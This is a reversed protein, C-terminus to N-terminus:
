YCAGPTTSPYAWGLYEFSTSSPTVTSKTGAQWGKLSTGGDFQSLTPIDPLQGSQLIYQLSSANTLTAGLGKGTWEVPDFVLDGGTSVDGSKTIAPARDAPSILLSQGDPANVLSYAYGGLQSTQGSSASIQALLPVLASASTGAASLANTGKAVANFESVFNDLRASKSPEFTVSKTDSANTTDTALSGDSSYAWADLKWTGPTTGVTLTFDYHGTADTTVTVPNFDADTLTGTPWVRGGNYCLSARPTTLGITSTSSGSLPELQVQVNPLPKGFETTTITGKLVQLGDAAVSSHAFQLSLEIGAKLEFDASQKDKDAVEVHAASPSYDVKSKGQPGGSPLVDYHGAKVQIAYFGDPGTAAGAGRRGYGKGYATVNTGTVPGGDKDKVYGQIIGEGADPVGYYDCSEWAGQTSGGSICIQAWQDGTSATAKFVCVTSNPKCGRVAGSVGWSWTVTGGGCSDPMAPGAKASIDGGIFAIHSSVQMAACRSQPLGAPSPGFTPTDASAGATSVLTLGGVLLLMAVTMMARLRGNRQNDHESSSMRSREITNGPGDLQSRSLTTLLPPLM